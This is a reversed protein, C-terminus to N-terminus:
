KRQKLFSFHLIKLYTNPSLCVDGMIEMEYAAFVPSALRLLGGRTFLDEWAEQFANQHAFKLSISAVTDRKLLVERKLLDTQVANAVRERNYDDDFWLGRTKCWDLNGNDVCGVINDVDTNTHQM